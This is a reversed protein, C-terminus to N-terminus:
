EPSSTPEEPATGTSPPETDPEPQSARLEDSYRSVFDIVEMEDMDSMDPMDLLHDVSPSDIPLDDSFEAAYEGRTSPRATEGTKAFQDLVQRVTMGSGQDTLDVGLELTRDVPFGAYENVLFSIAM